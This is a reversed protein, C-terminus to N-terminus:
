RRALARRRGALRRRGFLLLCLLWPLAPSPTTRCGCGGDGDGSGSGGTDTDAPAGTMGASASMGAGTGSGSASTGSTSADGSSGGSGDSGGDSGSSDGGPPGEAATRNVVEALGRTQANFIEVSRDVITDIQALQEPGLEEDPRKILLFSVDYSDPADPWAPDRAGESALVDDVTLDVRTGSVTYTDAQFQHANPPACEGNELASDICNFPDTILFFPEVEEAPILGMLYLDLDSFEFFDTKTATFTGDGNDTWAHGEIPSHNTDLYFSWHADSRGLLARPGAAPTDIHVFALWAHGLEQGFVLSIRQDDTGGPDKGVYNSWRNMHLFGQVQSNPTDDFIPEPIVADLPAIHEYGIGEVDNAVAQYLAGIGGPLSWTTYIVLFQSDDPHEALFGEEVAGYAALFPDRTFFNGFEVTNDIDDFLWFSESAEVFEIPAATASAPVAVVLAALGLAISRGM